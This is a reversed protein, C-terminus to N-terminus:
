GEFELLSSKPKRMLSSLMRGRVGGRRALHILMLPSVQGRAVMRELLAAPAADDKLKLLREAQQAPRDLKAVSSLTNIEDENDLYHLAKAVSGESYNAALQARAEETGAEILIEAVEEVSLPYFNVRRCRSTITLLPLRYTVFVIVFKKPPEEVLKLLANQVDASARSLEVLAFKRQGSLSKRRAWDILARADDVLPTLLVRRSTPHLDRALWEAYTRKGVGDPGYFVTPHQLDDLSATREKIKEHGHIM